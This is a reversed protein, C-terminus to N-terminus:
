FRHELLCCDVCPIDSDMGVNEPQGFFCLLIYITRDHYKEHEKLM